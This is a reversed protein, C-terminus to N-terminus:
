ERDIFEVINEGRPAGLDVRRIALTVMETGSALHCERMVAFSPYKGTGLVLRSQFTRDAITWM